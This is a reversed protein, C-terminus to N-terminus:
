FLDEDTDQGGRTVRDGTGPLRTGLGELDGVIEPAVDPAQKGAPDTGPGGEGEGGGRVSTLRSPQPESTRGLSRRVSARDLRGVETRPLADVLHYAAPRKFAPLL